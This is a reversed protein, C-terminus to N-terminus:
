LTKACRFGTNDYGQDGGAATAGPQWNQLQPGNDYYCGGFYQRQIDTQSTQGPGAFDTATAPYTYGSPYVFDWMWEDLSGVLDFVAPTSANGGMAASGVPVPFGCGNGTVFACTTATSPWPYPQNRSASVRWETDTPLRKGKWACFALAQFWNVCSVPYTPVGRPLTAAVGGTNSCGAAYGEYAGADAVYDGTWAGRWVMVSAFPGGPDLSAGDIPTPLGADLWGQFAGTTVETDDLAFAYDLTAHAHVAADWAENSDAQYVEFTYSGPQFLTMGTPVAGDYLSGDLRPAGTDPPAGADVPAGTDGGTAGDAPITGDEGGDAPKAGDGLRAGDGAGDGPSAATDGAASSDDGSMTADAGGSDAPAAGDGSGGDGGFGYDPFCAALLAAGLSGAAVAALVALRRRDGRSSM